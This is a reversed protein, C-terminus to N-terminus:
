RKLNEFHLGLPFMLALLDAPQHSTALTFPFPLQLAQPIRYSNSLVLSKDFSIIDSRLPNIVLEPLIRFGISRRLTITRYSSPLYFLSGPELNLKLLLLAESFTELGALNWIGTHPDLYPILSIRLSSISTIQTSVIWLRSCGCERLGAPDAFTAM